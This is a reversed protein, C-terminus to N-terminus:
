RRLRRFGQLWALTREVVGGTKGLGSGHAAGVKALLPRINRARLWRRHDQSSYGRDGQVIEPRHRPRGPKGRVPPIAEVLPWLQTSYHVNAGTL